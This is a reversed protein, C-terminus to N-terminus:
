AARRLQAARRLLFHVLLSLFAAGAGTVAAELFVPGFMGPHVWFDVISTAIGLVLSVLGPRKARSLLIVLSTAAGALLGTQSAIWWHSLSMALLNGQLMTFLCAATAEAVNEVFPKANDRV